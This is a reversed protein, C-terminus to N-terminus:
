IGPNLTDLSVSTRVLDRPKPNGSLHKQSSFGQTQPTWLNHSAKARVHRGQGQGLVHGWLKSFCQNPLVKSSRVARAQVKRGPGPGSHIRLAAILMSEPANGSKTYRGSHGGVGKESTNAMRAQNYGGSGPRWPLPKRRLRSEMYILHRSPRLKLMKKHCKKNKKDEKTSHSSPRPPWIRSIRDKPARNEQWSVLRISKLSRRLLISKEHKEIKGLAIRPNPPRSKAAGSPGQGPRAATAWFHLGLAYFLM